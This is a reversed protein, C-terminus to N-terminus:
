VDAAALGDQITITVFWVGEGRILRDIQTLTVGHRHINCDKLLRWFQLHSLLFINDPPNSRGLRSYFGFILRLEVHQSMVVSEVQPLVSVAHPPSCCRFPLPVASSSVKMRETERDRQPIKNLLVRINFAM